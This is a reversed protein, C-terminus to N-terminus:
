WGGHRSPRPWARARRARASAACRRTEARRPRTVAKAEDEATRVLSAPALLAAELSDPAARWSAARRRRRLLRPWAGAGGRTRAGRPQPWRPPPSSATGRLLVKAVTARGARRHHCAPLPVSDDAGPGRGLPACLWVIRPHAGRDGEAAREGGARHATPTRSSWSRGAGGHARGGRPPGAGRQEVGYVARGPPGAHPRRPHRGAGPASRVAAAAPLACCRPPSPGAAVSRGSGAARHVALRADDRRSRSAARWCREAAATARSAARGGSGARYNSSRGALTRCGSHRSRRPAASSQGAPLSPALQDSPVEEKIAPIDGTSAEAVSPVPDPLLGRIRDEIDRTIKDAPPRTSCWTAGPEADALALFGAPGPPPLRGARGRAPRGFPGAPEARGVPGHRAPHDPGPHPRRDGM